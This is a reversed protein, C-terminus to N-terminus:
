PMFPQAKHAMVQVLLSGDPDGPKVCAGSSGGELLKTYNSVILGSSRKDPNHCAVCKDRLLPLIHVDYTIKSGAKKPDPAQGSASAALAFLAGLILFQRM